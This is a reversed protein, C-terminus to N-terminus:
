LMWCHHRSCYGTMNVLMGFCSGGYCPVLIQLNWQLAFKVQDGWENIVPMNIDDVFVTMKRGAPPGYTNGVRKDVYSEITRQLICVCECMIYNISLYSVQFLMPTSASSFNFTKFLHREPDYKSAYAKIMVTKATGPEGILMVAKNQKAITDILFTTCVNDVNPVLISAYEPVRDPPYIYDEVRSSWHIWEGNESVLYEFITEGEDLSPLDLENQLM